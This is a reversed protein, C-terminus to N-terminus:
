LMGLEGKNHMYKHLYFMDLKYDWGNVSKRTRKGFFDDLRNIPYITFDKIVFM